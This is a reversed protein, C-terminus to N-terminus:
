LISRENACRPRVPRTPAGFVMEKRRPEMLDFPWSRKGPELRPEMGIWQGHIVVTKDTIATNFNHSEGNPESHTIYPDILKRLVEGANRRM